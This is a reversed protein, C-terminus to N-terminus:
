KWSAMKSSCLPAQSAQARLLQLSDSRPAGRLAAAICARVLANQEITPKMTIRGPRIM